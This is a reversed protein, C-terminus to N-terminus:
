IVMIKRVPRHIEGIIMFFNTSHISFLFGGINKPPKKFCWGTQQFLGAPTNYDAFIRWVIRSVVIDEKELSYIVYLMDGSVACTPYGYLGGKTVAPIAPRISRAAASSLSSTM